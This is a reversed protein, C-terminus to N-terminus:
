VASDRLSLNVSSICSFAEDEEQISKLAPDRYLILEIRDATLLPVALDCDLYQLSTDNVQLIRDLPQIQGSLDAPGGPLIANIFVGPNDGTGDSVSFGFSGTAPDKQLVVRHTTGKPKENTPTTAKSSLEHLMLGSTSPTMVKATRSLVSRHSSTPSAAYSTGTDVGSIQNLLVPVRVQDPQDYRPPKPPPMCPPIEYSLIGSLSDGSHVSLSELRDSSMLALPRPMQAIASSTSLPPHKLITNTNSPTFSQPLQRGLVSASPSLLGGSSPILSSATQQSGPIPPRMHSCPPVTGGMISDELKKLMEAEGVTELAELIKVWDNTGSTSAKQCGCCEAGGNDTTSSLGSDWGGQDGTACAASSVSSYQQATIPHTNRLHVGTNNNAADRSSRWDNREESACQYQVTPGRDEGSFRQTNPHAGKQQGIPSEELSEVASDISQIPTGMKESAESFSDGCAVTAHPLRYRQANTASSSPCFAGGSYPFTSQDVYRSIKITVLDDSQQLLHMADSVKKGEISEGNIALIRDGVRLAGTREALGRPALQSIIVPDGREGRSAITIGMPRGKRNLEISYVVTHSCDSEEPSAAAKRIRLKVVDGSRQLLRMAEEVTCSDLPINDIALIRDGVHISGCRQAISGTRIDSIIVPEGKRGDTEGRAIIGLNNGRKALKVNLIGNPPLLSEIVDFEVTLTLPSSSHRMLRNAEDITGNATYWDNITLVRDGVQLVGCREAPSGKEIYSIFLPMPTRMDTSLNQQRQLVLGFAGKAYSQLVVEMTECHCVQGSPVTSMSGHMSSNGNHLDSARFKCCSRGMSTSPASLFPKQRTTEQQMNPVSGGIAGKTTLRQGSACTADAECESDVTTENSALLSREHSKARPQQFNRRRIAPPSFCVSITGNNSTKRSYAHSIARVKKELHGKMASKENENAQM